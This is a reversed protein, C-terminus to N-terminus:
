APSQLLLALIKQAAIAVRDAQFTGNVIKRASLWNPEAPPLPFYKDLGVGSFLGQKMGVVLIKAGVEPRLVEDPNKVLDLGVISSFKRYNKLWTLQCFGRGYYGTQWYANQMKWIASGPHARIEKISRYRCEHYATGLIYAVQRPDVIGQADCEAAILRVARGQEANLKMKLTAALSALWTDSDVIQLFM